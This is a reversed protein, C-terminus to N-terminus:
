LNEFSALCQATGRSSDRACETLPPILDTGTIYYLKILVPTKALLDTPEVRLKM